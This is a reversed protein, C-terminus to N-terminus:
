APTSSPATGPTPAAHPPPTSVSSTRARRDRLGRVALQPARALIYGCYSLGLPAAFTRVLAAAGNITGGIEGAEAPALVRHPFIPLPKTATRQARLKPSRGLVLAAYAEAFDVGLGLPAAIMGWPRINADIHLLRGDPAEVFGFSVFGQPGFLDTARRGATLLEPKDDLTAEAAPGCERQPREIRFGHEMLPGHAGVVAGYVVVKGLVHQQYFLSSEDGGLDQLHSPIDAVDRAMRVREGSAGVPHKIWLPLGLQAVAESPTAADVRIQRPTELGAVALAQNVAFKDLLTEPPTGHFALARAALAQGLPTELGLELLAPENAVVDVVAGSDLLNRLRARGSEVGIFILEDYFMRDALWRLHPENLLRKFRAPPLNTLRVARIGRRRLGVAVQEFSDWGQDDFFLVAKRADVSPM